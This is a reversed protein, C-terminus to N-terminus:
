WQQLYALTSLWRGSQIKESVNTQTKKCFPRKNLSMLWVIYKGYVFKDVASLQLQEKSRICVESEQFVESAILRVV